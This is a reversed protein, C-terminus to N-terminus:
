GMQAIYELQPRMAGLPYGAKVARDILEQAPTTLVAGYMWAITSRTGSACYALAPGDSAEIADRQKRIESPSIEGQALPNEVFALGAAEAAERVLGSQLGPVVEHDPRNSIITRFGAAVIAPIDEPMIQPSVAYENTLARIEM